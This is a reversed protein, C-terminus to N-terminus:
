EMVIFVGKMQVHDGTAFHDCSIYVCICVCVTKNAEREKERQYIYIM